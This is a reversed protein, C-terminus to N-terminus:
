ARAERARMAVGVAASRSNVGLKSFVNAVHTGATRPSIYLADGIEANSRGEILLDIIQIERPTLGFETLSAAPPVPQKLELALRLTARGIAEWGKRQGERWLADFREEGLESRLENIAEERYAPGYRSRAMGSAEYAAVAAGLMRVAQDKHGLRMLAEAGGLLSDAGAHPDRIKLWHPMSQQYYEYARQYDGRERAIDGLHDVIPSMGSPYDIRKTIAFGRELLELADELRGQRRALSGLFSLAYAAWAPQRSSDFIELAQEFEQRALGLNGRDREVSGRCIHAIGADVTHGGREFEELALDAAPRAVDYRGLAWNLFASALDVRARVLPSLELRRARVKDLWELGERYHGRVGWYYWDLHALEGAREVDHQMLWDFAAVVNTADREISEMAQVERATYFDASVRRVAEFLWDAHRAQIADREGATELQEAAFERITEFM